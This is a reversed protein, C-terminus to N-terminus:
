TASPPSSPTVPTSELVYLAAAVAGHSGITEGLAAPVIQCVARPSPLAEDDIVPYMAPDLLHRSKPYFGGIVIREPNFLDILLSVAAGLKQGAEAMISQAFADGAEAAHALRQGTIEVSDDRWPAAAAAPSSALRLRALRAIGGGSCFGEVSGAKGYGVPGTPALRVHGVEGADGTTGEYLRGDLILGAGFGTGSTLFIMNAVGQGAGFKWEALACANADNMLTAQGGFATTLREVIAIGHWSEHLNPPATITGRRGDLPGGCSVGMRLPRDPDRLARVGTCLAAFTPEFAATAIRTSEVVRGDVLQSVACKTGGIDIGMIQPESM